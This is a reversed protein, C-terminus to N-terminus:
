NFAPLIAPPLGISVGATAPAGNDAFAVALNDIVTGPTADASVKLTLVAEAMQNAALTDWAFIVVTADDDDKDLLATGGRDAEAAVLTLTDPLRNRIRVNGAIENAPNRVVMRIEIIEGPLAGRPANMVLSMTFTPAALTVPVRTATPTNTPPAPTNTATSPVPTNTPAATAGPVPTNQPPVPTNTPPVPTNTAPPPVPTETAPMPTNTPTITPVETDIPTATPVPVTQQLRDALVSPTAMFALGMVLLTIVIPWSRKIMRVVRVRTNLKEFNRNM